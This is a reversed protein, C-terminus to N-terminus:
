VGSSASDKSARQRISIWTGLYDFDPAALRIGPMIPKPSIPNLLKPIQAGSLALNLGLVGMRTALTGWCVWEPMM